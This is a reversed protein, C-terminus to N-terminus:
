NPLREEDEEVVHTLRGNINKTGTVVQGSTDAARNEERWQWYGDADMIKRAVTAVWQAQFDIFDVVGFVVINVLPANGSWYQCLWQQKEVIGWIDLGEEAEGYSEVCAAGRDALRKQFELDDGQAILLADKIWDPVLEPLLGEFEGHGIYLVLQAEDM